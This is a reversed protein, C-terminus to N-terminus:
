EQTLKSLMEYFFWRTLTFDTEKGEVHVTEQFSERKRRNLLFGPWDQPKLSDANFSGIGTTPLYYQTKLVVGWVLAEYGVQSPM